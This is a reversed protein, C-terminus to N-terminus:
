EPFSSWITGTNDKPPNPTIETKDFIAKAKIYALRKSQEEISLGEEFTEDVESVQVEFKLGMMELLERRRSSGSAWIMKM